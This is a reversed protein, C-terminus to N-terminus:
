RPRLALGELNPIEVLVLFVSHAIRTCIHSRGVNKAPKQQRLGQIAHYLRVVNYLLAGPKGLTFMTSLSPSRGSNTASVTSSPNSARVGPTSVGISGAKPRDGVPGRNAFYKDVTEVLDTPNLWGQDQTAEVSLVYNLCAAPLTIKSSRM